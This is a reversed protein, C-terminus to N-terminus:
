IKIVLRIEETTGKDMDIVTNSSETYIVKGSERLLDPKTVNICTGLAGSNSGSIQSSSVSFSNFKSVDYLVLVSHVNAIDANASVSNIRNGVFFQQVNSVATMKIYTTNAFIVTGNAGTNGNTVVDGITFPSASVPTLALDLDTTGSLVRAKAGTNAQTILEFPTFAGTNSSLTLRGTQNFKQGYTTTVTREGARISIANVVARATSGNATIAIGNAFRGVVNSVQITTNNGGVVIAKAGTEEQSINDGTTFRAITVVSVNAAAGSNYGEVKMTSNASTLFTGKVERLKLVTNNGSIVLGAANTSEQVVVEGNTWTGSANLLTLNVSNFDQLTLAVNAFMPDKLIGLKRFSLKSPLLYSENAFTDFKVTIGAYRAGLEVVPDAGHGLLPSISATATAGNGFNSNAYIQISAETYNNGPDIVTIKSVANATGVSTDVYAVAHAGAGDGTIKVTPGIEYDILGSTLNVVNFLNATGTQTDSTDVFFVPFGIVFQGAPNTVTVSPNQTVADIDARQLSTLGRVKQGASWSGRSASIVLVSNNTFAVTGNAGLSTNSADVAQVREGILFNVNLLDSNSIDFERYDVTSNSVIGNAYSVSITQPSSAISLKYTNAATLTSIFPVDVVISTSNVFSVRRFNNNANEGVRIYSNIPFDTAFDTTGGTNNAAILSRPFIRGTATQGQVTHGTETPGKTLAIRNASDTNATPCFAIHTANAFQIFYQAGSVLGGVATNGTSVSYTAVDGAAFSGATALAIVNNTGAGTGGTVATNANFTQATPASIAVTPETLFGLGNNSILIATVKGSSVSANAVGGTGTNSTITVTANATYGSGATLLLAESFLSNNTSINVKKDATSSVLTGTDSTDRIPLTPTFNVGRNYRSLRLTSNNSSLVLADVATDSQIVNATTNFYGVTNALAVTDVIQQIKEGVAGGGTSFVANALDFKTYVDVPSELTVTKAVGNYGTIERIQGAGFGSKLYITSKNYYGNVSSSTNSIKITNQDIIAQIQGTEYVDYGIGGNAINIVDITGPVANGQVAPDLTVPIFSSSTFRTNAVPDITYMYKWIYGDSTEFTSDTIVLSPMVTSNAGKNNYICKYINYAPVTLVYYDKTYMDKDSQDYQDYVTNATWTNRTVLHVIDTNSVVKGFLLENFTDLEVQAVSTNVVQVYSEDPTGNPATWPNPRAAFVYYAGNSHEVSEIFNNVQDVYYNITLLSSM